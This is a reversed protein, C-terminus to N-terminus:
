DGPPPPEPSELSDLAQLVAHEVSSRVMSDIEKHMRASLENVADDLGAHLRRQLDSALRDPLYLALSARFQEVMAERMARETDQPSVPQQRSPPPAFDNAAQPSPWEPEIRDVVDTLVPDAAESETKVVETLVPFDQEPHSVRYRDLLADAKKLLDRAETM